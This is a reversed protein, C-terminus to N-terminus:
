EWAKALAASVGETLDKIEKWRIGIPESAMEGCKQYVFIEVLDTDELFDNAAFGFGLQITHPEEDVDPRTIAFSRLSEAIKTKKKRRIKKEKKKLAWDM